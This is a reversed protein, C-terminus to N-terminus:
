KSTGLALETGPYYYSLIEEYSMGRKAFFVAGAQSMGVGHGWGRVTFCFKEERYEVTFSASRLSFASRLESGTVEQGGLLASSVYGFGTDTIGTLWDKESGSFDLSLEPFAEKAARCFEEPSLEAYSLYGDSFCDGPSAVPQLYPLDHGWVSGATTTSGASIASYVALIPEDEWEIRQGSVSDVMRNLLALYGDADEGWRSRMQEETTWIQWAESDCLIQEGMERQRCFLTYCAVAQAKLAEEPSFLDMECAVAGCLLKRAPVEVTEGTSCDYLSFFDEEIPSSDGAAPFAELFGPPEENEKSVASKENFASKASGVPLVFHVLAVVGYVLLFALVALMLWNKKRRIHLKRKM